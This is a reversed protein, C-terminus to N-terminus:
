LWCKDRLQRWAIEIQDAHFLDRKRRSWSHVGRITTAVDVRAAENGEVAVWHVSSLLEMGYPTEFGEILNSIREFRANVDAHSALLEEAEQLADPLPHIQTDPRNSGDGFGVIFHGEIHNLVHRLKSAYPGYARPQFDLSLNEGSRQMFYALKQIELLSLRYVYGTSLYRNILGLVVARGATMKPRNTWITMHSADPAGVPEFVLAHVDPLQEFAKQILPSVEEWNLGGNGCGLPPVAISRIGRMKIEDVLAVLGSRIDEIRSRARWHRKTPFNIIFRPNHLTDLAFTFVRGPQLEGSKCVRQYARDNDPFRKKFQLAIGKGMIGVTNVTNVLAEVDSDLLDGRVLNLV